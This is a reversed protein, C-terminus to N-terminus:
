ASKFHANMGGARSAVQALLHRVTALDQTPPEHDLTTSLGQMRAIIRHLQLEDASARCMRFQDILIRLSLGHLQKSQTVRYVKELQQLGFELQMDPVSKSTQIKVELRAVESEYYVDSTQEVMARAQQITAQAVDLDGHDLHLEAELAWYYSRALMAGHAAWDAHANKVIALGETMSGLRAKAVGFMVRAHASWLSYQSANAYELAKSASNLAVQWNGCGYQIMAAIGHAQLRTLTHNGSDAMDCAQASLSLAQSPQGMMWLCFARYMMAMVLPNQILDAGLNHQRCWAMCVSMLGACEVTQGEYFMLNARAWDYELVTLPHQVRAATQHIAAIYDHALPFNGRMFYHNKLGLQARLLSQQDDHKRSIQLASQYHQEIEESAFGSTVLLQGAISLHASLLAKESPDFDHHTTLISILTRLVEIGVAHAGKQKCHRVANQLQMVSQKIQGAALLHHAVNVSVASSDTQYERQLVKAVASHLQRRDTEWLSYYAADMLLAHSFRVVSQHKQFLVDLVGQQALEQCHLLLQEDSYKTINLELLIKQLLQLTTEHGIVSLVQVMDRTHGLLDLRHLLIESLTEPVPSRRPLTQSTQIQAVYEAHMLLKTCQILFLPNGKAKALTQSLLDDSLAKKGGLVQGVLADSEGVSLAKLAHHHTCAKYQRGSQQSPRQTVIVMLPYRQATKKVLDGLWQASSSDISQYDDVILVCPTSSVQDMLWQCAKDITEKHQDLTDAYSLPAGAPHANFLYAYTSLYQKLHPKQEALAVLECWKEQASGANSFRIQQAIWQSIISFPVQYEHPKCRLYFVHEPAVRAHVWHKVARTKGLGAEGEILLDAGGGKRVQMWIQDLQGLLDQRGEFPLQPQLIAPHTTPTSSVVKKGLEFVVRIDEFDPLPRELTHQQVMFDGQSDLLVSEDLYVAQPAAIKQLRAALHVILGYPQMSDVAAVGSALGFRVPWQNRRALECMQSAANIAFLGAHETSHGLGFYCMSGDDGLPQDIKGRWQKVIQEFNSHIKTILEVYVEPGLRGMLSTSRVIDYSIVSIRKISRSEFHRVNSERLPQAPLDVSATLTAPGFSHAVSFTNFLTVNINLALLAELWTGARAYDESDWNESVLFIDVSASDGTNTAGFAEINQLSPLSISNKFVLVASPGASDTSLYEHLSNLRAVKLLSTGWLSPHQTMASKKSFEDQFVFVRRKADLATLSTQWYSNKKESGSALSIKLRECQFDARNICIVASLMDLWPLALLRTDTSLKPLRALQDLATQIRIALLYGAESCIRRAQRLKEEFRVTEGVSVRHEHDIWVQQLSGDSALSVTLEHDHLPPSTPSSMSIAQIDGVNSPWHWRM